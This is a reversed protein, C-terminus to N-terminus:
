NEVCVVNLFQSRFNGAGNLWSFNRGSMEVRYQRDLTSLDPDVFTASGGCVVEQGEEFYDGGNIGYSRRQGTAAFSAVLQFAGGNLSRYLRIQATPDYSVDEYSAPFPPAYSTSAVRTEAAYSFSVTITGGLSGFRGTQASVAASQDSTRQSAQLQGASIGGAFYAKGSADRWETANSKRMNAVEQTPGFWYILNDNTLKGMAIRGSGVKIAIHPHTSIPNLEIEKNPGIYLPGTIYVSGGIIKMVEVISGNITNAFSM